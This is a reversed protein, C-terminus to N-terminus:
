EAKLETIRMEIKEKRKLYTGQHKLEIEKAPDPYFETAIGILAKADSIQYNPSSTDLEKQLFARFLRNIQNIDLKEAIIAKQKNEIYGIKSDFLEERLPVYGISDILIIYVAHWEIPTM